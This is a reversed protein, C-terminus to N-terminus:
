EHAGAPAASVLPPRWDRQAQACSSSEWRPWHLWAARMLSILMRRTTELYAEFKRNQMCTLYSM